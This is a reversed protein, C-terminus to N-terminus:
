RISVGFVVVENDLNWDRTRVLDELFKIRNVQSRLYFKDHMGLWKHRVSLYSVIWDREDCNPNDPTKFECRRLLFNLMKGTHVYSDYVVLKGIATSINRRICWEMAPLWYCRDFYEDQICQMIPDRGAKILLDVVYENTCIEPGRWDIGRFEDSCEGGAQIYQNILAPLHQDQSTQAKGYWLRMTDYPGSYRKSVKSYDGDPDGTEFVNVISQIKKKKHRIDMVENVSLPKLCAYFLNENAFIESDVVINKNKDLLSSGLKLRCCSYVVDDNEINRCVGEIVDCAHSQANEIYLNKGILPIGSESATIVYFPFNIKEEM